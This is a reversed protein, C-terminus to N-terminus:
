TKRRMLKAQIPYSIRPIASMMVTRMGLLMFTLITVSGALFYLTQILPDINAGKLMNWCIYIDLPSDGENKGAVDYRPGLSFAAAHNAPGPGHSLRPKRRIQNQFHKRLDWKRFIKSLNQNEFLELKGM